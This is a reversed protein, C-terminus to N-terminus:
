EGLTVVMIKELLPIYDKLIKKYLGEAWERDYDHVMRNRDEVMSLAREADEASLLGAKVSERYVSTPYPTEIKFKNELYIKLTKWSLESVLEFRLLTSDRTIESYPSSASVKLSNLSNKFSKNKLNIIKDM